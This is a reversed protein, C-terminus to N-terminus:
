LPSRQREIGNTDDSQAIWLLQEQTYIKGISLGQVIISFVVVAFTMTLMLEREPTAPLSLVMAISLGGRLGGWTLLAVIHRKKARYDPGIRLAAVPAAVSLMRGLLCIPIAILAAIWLESTAPVVLLHLGILLFLVVNLVEDVMEWFTDMHHRNAEAVTLSRGYNGVILGAVVIAILGSVHLLESVTFCGSVLALTILVQSSLHKVGTLLVFAVISCVTGVLVAGLAQQAFLSLMGGVSADAGGSIIGLVILFVVVGVGDNFLSEGEILIQLRAPMGAKKLIGLCAIPDTPSIMAGFLLASLYPVKIGILELGFWTLTGIFFCGLVTSGIALTAILWKQDALDAMRVNLSGSFLLFAIMGHLLTESFEVEEIFQRAHEKLTLVETVELIYLGLSVVIAVVMVGITDPLKLLRENIYAFVASCVLLVTIIEFLM